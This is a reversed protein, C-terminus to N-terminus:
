ASGAGSIDTSVIGGTGFTTDLVGASTYRVVAFNGGQAPTNGAVYIEGSPGRASANGRDAAHFPTTGFATTLKGDGDFSPDLDSPGGFAAGPLALATLTAVISLLLTRRFHLGM